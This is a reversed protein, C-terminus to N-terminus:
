GLERDQDGARENERDAQHEGCDFQGNPLRDQGDGQNREDIGRCEEHIQSQIALRANAGREVLRSAVRARDYGLRRGSQLKNCHLRSAGQDGVKAVFDALLQCDLLVMENM